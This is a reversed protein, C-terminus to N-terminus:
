HLEDKRDDCEAIHIGDPHTVAAVVPNHQYRRRFAVIRDVITEPSEAVMYRHGNVMVLMTDPVTDIYELLDPNVLRPQNGMYTVEIM